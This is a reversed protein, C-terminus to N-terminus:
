RPRMLRSANHRLLLLARATCCSIIFIIRPPCTIGLRECIYELRKHKGDSAQKLWDGLTEGFPENAKGEIMIAFTM